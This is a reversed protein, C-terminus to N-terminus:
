NTVPATSRGLGGNDKAWVILNRPEFGCSKFHAVIEPSQREGHWVYAVDGPFLAWAATWDSRDDNLVKGTTANRSAGRGGFASSSKLNLKEPENRWNADYEVGYPPDTVMLHPKAGALLAAVDEASTSDGCRIRHDGLIWVDGAQSVAVTPVEPVDDPDGQPERGRAFLGAVEADSFGTADIAFDAEALARLEASLLDEDWGANEALKNDALVYARRKTDSWGRAVMVPVDAIGLTKAALVRGHGAIIEGREDVLVPITWGWERISAALQAVQEASHTRANGAYPSLAALPRQELRRDPLDDM